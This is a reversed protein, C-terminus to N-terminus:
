LIVLVGTQWHCIIPEVEVSLPVVIVCRELKLVRGDVRALQHPNSPFAVRQLLLPVAKTVVPKKKYNQKMVQVYCTSLVVSKHYTFWIIYYAFLSCM